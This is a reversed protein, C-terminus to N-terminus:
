APTKGANLVSPVIKKYRGSDQRASPRWGGSSLPGLGAGAVLSRLRIASPFDERRAPHGGGGVCFAARDTVPDRRALCSVVGAEFTTISISNTPIRACGFRM